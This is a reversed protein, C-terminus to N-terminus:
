IVSPPGDKSQQSCGPTATHPQAAHSVAQDAATAVSASERPGRTSYYCAGITQDQAPLGPTSATPSCNQATLVPSFRPMSNHYPIQYPLPTGYSVWTVWESDASKARCRRLHFTFSERAKCLLLIPHIVPTLRASSGLLDQTWLGFTCWLLHRAWRGHQSDHGTKLSSRYEGGFNRCRICQKSGCLDQSWPSVPGIGLSAAPGQQARSLGQREACPFCSPLASPGSPIKSAQPYAHSIAIEKLHECTLRSKPTARARFGDLAVEPCIM